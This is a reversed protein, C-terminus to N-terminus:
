LFASEIVSSSCFLFYGASIATFFIKMSCFISAPWTQFMVKTVLFKLVRLILSSASVPLITESLNTEIIFKRKLQLETPKSDKVGISSIADNKNKEYQKRISIIDNENLHALPNNTKGIWALKKKSKTEESDIHGMLKKSIKQKVEDSIVNGMLSESLHQCHEPTRVKGRHSYCFKNKHELSLQRGLMPSTSDKAINM